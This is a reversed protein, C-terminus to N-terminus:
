RLLVPFCASRPWFRGAPVSFCCKAGPSAPKLAMTVAWTRRPNHEYQTFGCHVTYATGVNLAFGPHRKKDITRPPFTLLAPLTKLKGQLPSCTGVSNGQRCKATPTLCWFVSNVFGSLCTWFFFFCRLDKKLTCQKSKLGGDLICSRLCCLWALRSVRTLFDSIWNCGATRLDLTHPQGFPKM